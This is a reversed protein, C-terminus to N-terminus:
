KLKGLMLLEMRKAIKRAIRRDFGVGDKKLPMDLLKEFELSNIRNEIRNEIAEDFLRIAKSDEIEKHYIELLYHRIQKIEEHRDSIGQSTFEEESEEILKIEDIIGKIKESLSHATRKDFSLGGEKIDKDLYEELLTANSSGVVLLSQVKKEIKNIEEATLGTLAEAVIQKAKFPILLYGANRITSFTRALLELEKSLTVKEQGAKSIEIKRNIAKNVQTKIVKGDKIYFVRHAWSLHAPNHTVLIITKKQKDNLDSLLQMVENSSKSDLNGVPEDAFIFEPDNMMARCIAVRQQQGGSLNNPLKNAQMHVSFKKLLEMAKEHREKKNGGIAAQPLVVNKIVSLSSILYYAQFIMGITKQHFIENERETLNAINKGGIIIEGKARKELGAISYLLTSKGCGSPGFFIIFEGPYIDLNLNQLAKVENPKGLFYTVNLDRVKIAIEEEKIEKKTGNKVKDNKEEVLGERSQKPTDEELLEELEHKFDDELTNQEIKISEEEM